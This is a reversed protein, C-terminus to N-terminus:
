DNAVHERQHPADVFALDFHGPPLLPLIEVSAAVHMVVRERVGYRELNEVLPTL